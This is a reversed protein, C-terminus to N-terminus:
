DYAHWVVKITADGGNSSSLRGLTRIKNQPFTIDNWKGMHDDLGPDEEMIRIQKIEAFNWEEKIGHTSYLDPYLYWEDINNVEPLDYKDEHYFQGVPGLERMDCDTEM